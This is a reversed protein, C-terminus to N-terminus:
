AGRQPSSFSSVGQNTLSDVVHGRSVNRLRKKEKTCQLQEDTWEGAEEEAYTCCKSPALGRGLFSVGLLIRPDTYQWLHNITIEGERM